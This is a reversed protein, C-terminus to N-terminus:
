KVSRQSPLTERHSKTVMAEKSPAFQSITVGKNIKISKLDSLSSEKGHRVNQERGIASDFEILKTLPGNAEIQKYV